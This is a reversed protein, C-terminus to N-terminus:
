RGLGIRGTRIPARYWTPVGETRRAPLVLGSAYPRVRVRASTRLAVHQVCEPVRLSRRSTVLLASGASAPILPRVQAESTVADLVILVRRTALLSRYRGIREDPQEPVEDPPVGFARLVRAMLNSATVDPGGEAFIQGDPFADALAHGARIVLATKGSRPPGHIIVVASVRGTPVTRVGALVVALEDSHGAVSMLDPPLERPAEVAVTRGPFAPPPRGLDLHPARELMAVHLAALENGPDVGLQAHLIAQAQRFSALAAGVDGARYLALMLQGWARERLPHAALHERLVVVLDGLNGLRLRAEVLDEVTRLRDAELGTLLVDLATGRPLGTGAPGRWLRLAAALRAEAQEAEGLALANRGTDALRRFEGVDLEHSALNLQYAGQRSVIRDVLARRLSAVHNRINAVASRPPKGAWLLETLRHLTVPRNAELALVALVARQKAPGAHVLGNEGRLEVPGLLRVEISM